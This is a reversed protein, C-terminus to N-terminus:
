EPYGDLLELSGMGEHQGLSYAGVAELMEHTDLRAEIDERVMQVQASRAAEMSMVAGKVQHARSLSRVVIM